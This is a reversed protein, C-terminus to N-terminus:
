ANMEKLLPFINHFLSSIDHSTISFQPNHILQNLSTVSLLGAPKALDAIAGHLIKNKAKDTSGKTLFSEIERLVDILHRDDGNSKKLSIKRTGDEEAYAKASLEFM